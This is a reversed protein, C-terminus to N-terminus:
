RMLLQNVRVKRRIQQFDIPPIDELVRSIINIMYTNHQSIKKVCVTGQNYVSKIKALEDEYYQIISTMDRKLNEGFSKANEYINTCTKVNQLFTDTKDIDQLNFFKSIEADKYFKVIIDTVVDILMTNLMLLENEFTRNKNNYIITKEYKSRDIKNLILDISADRIHHYSININARNTGRLYEVHRLYLVSHIFYMYFFNGFDNMQKIVSEDKCIAIHMALRDFVNEFAVKWDHVANGCPEDGEERPIEGNASIKRRYEYYHPNHIRGNEVIGTKWSFATHCITCFMQDCGDIKSISFLCKPCNKTEKNMIMISKKTDENCIHDDNKVEFCDPCIVSSCSGCKFDDDLFGNCNERVCHRIKTVTMKAGNVNVFYIMRIENIIQDYRIKLNKMQSGVDKIKKLNRIQSRVDNLEKNLRNRELRKAAEQQLSPLLLDQNKIVIKNSYKTFEGNVFTKGLMDILTSRNYVCSCYMCKPVDNNSETLYKRICIKCAEKECVKCPIIHEKTCCIQCEGRSYKSLYTFITKPVISMTPVKHTM